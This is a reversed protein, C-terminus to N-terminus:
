WPLVFVRTCMGQYLLPWALTQSVAAEIPNNVRNMIKIVENKPSAVDNFHLDKINVYVEKGNNNATPQAFQPPPPPEPQIGPHAEGGCLWDLHRQGLANHSVNSCLEVNCQQDSPHKKSCAICRDLM